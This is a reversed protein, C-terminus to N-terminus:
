DTCFISGIKVLCFLSCYVLLCGVCMPWDNKYPLTPPPLPSCLRIYVVKGYPNSSATKGSACDIDQYMIVLHLSNSDALGALLRVIHCSFLGKKLLCIRFNCLASVLHRGFSDM